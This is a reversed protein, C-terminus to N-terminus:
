RWVHISVALLLVLMRRCAAVLGAVCALVTALGARGRDVRALVSGVIAVTSAAGCHDIGGVDSEALCLSDVASMMALVLACRFAVRDADMAADAAAWRCPIRM